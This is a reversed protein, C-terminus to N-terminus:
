SAVPTLLPRGAFHAALNDVVLQAMADRTEVTASAQHPSLVVNDLGILAEPRCPETAFVDLAAGKIRRAVLAETLAAEDVVSGRAVNVLYGNPGLAELVAADVLHRTAAGGPCSLMLVDAFGALVKPEPTWFWPVRDVQRRNCYGIEMGMAEARRAIARGIRGLGVIGLRKGSLRTTLAMPGQALWSGDRVYRDAFPIRRVIALMLGIGLDAVDDTLVDPTNTIAIGRAKCAAHDIADTGVGFCSVIELKPLREILEAPVAKDGATVVGRVRPGVEAVLAGRDTAQDLRHLRYAAELQAMQRPLVPWVVLIEPTV